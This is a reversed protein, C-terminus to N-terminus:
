GPMVLFSFDVLGWVGNSLSPFQPDTPPSAVKGADWFWYSTAGAQLSLVTRCWTQHDRWENGPLVRKSVQNRWIYHLLWVLRDKLAWQVWFLIEHNKLGRLGVWGGGWGETRSQSKKSGVGSTLWLYNGTWGCPPLPTCLDGLNQSSPQALPKNSTKAEWQWLLLSFSKVQSGFGGTGEAENWKVVEPQHVSIIWGRGRGKLVEHDM